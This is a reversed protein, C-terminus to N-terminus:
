AEEGLRTELVALQSRDDRRRREFEADVDAGDVDDHLDPRRARDRNTQLADPTGAVPDAGFRLAHQVRRRAVFQDLAGREHARDPRALHVPQAQRRRREVDERLLENRGTRRFVPHDVIQVREHAGRVGVAVERALVEVVDHGHEGVADRRSAPAAAREEM